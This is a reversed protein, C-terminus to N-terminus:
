ITRMKILLKFRHNLRVGELIYGANKKKGISQLKAQKFLQQRLEQINNMMWDNVIWMYLHNFFEIKLKAQNETEATEVKQLQGNSKFEM